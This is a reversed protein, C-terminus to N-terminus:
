YRRVATTVTQVVKEVDTPSLHPHIPLSLATAAISEAVPFDGRKYKLFGYAPQLHLPVPYHISSEIGHQRLIERIVNGL